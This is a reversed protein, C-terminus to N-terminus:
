HLDKMLSFVSIVKGESSADHFIHKINNVPARKACCFCLGAKSMCYLNAKFNSLRCQRQLGSNLANYSAVWRQFRVSVSSVAYWVSPDLLCVQVSVMCERVNKWPSITPIEAKCVGKKSIYREKQLLSLKAWLESVPDWMLLLTTDM